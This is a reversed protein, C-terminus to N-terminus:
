QASLCVSLALQPAQPTAHGLPIAHLAPTHEVVKTVPKAMWGHITGALPL